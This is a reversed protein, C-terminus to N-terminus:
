EHGSLRDDEATKSGDRSRSFDIINLVLIVAALVLAPLVLLLDIRISSYSSIGSEHYLYIGLPLLTVGAM